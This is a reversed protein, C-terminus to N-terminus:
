RVITPIDVPIRFFIECHTEQVAVSDRADSGRASVEPEALGRLTAHGLAAPLPSGSADLIRRDHNVRRAVPM